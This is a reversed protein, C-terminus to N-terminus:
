PVLNNLETKSTVIFQYAFDKAIDSMFQTPVRDIANRFESDPVELIRRLTVQAYDPWQQFIYNAIDLPSPAKPDSIDAFVGGNGKRVYNLVGDSDLIRKRREDNMERGLSSAHDYSPAASYRNIGNQIESRLEWNEHHRDTNGILADLLAYSALSTLVDEQDDKGDVTEKVAKVINLVNHDRQRFRAEPRMDYEPIKSALIESGPIFISGEIDIEETQTSMVIDATLTYDDDVYDLEDPFYEYLEYWNDPDFSECVTVLEGDCNALEVRACDVGILGGVEAAVKEAWHEGTDKRPFKLLWLNREHPAIQEDPIFTWFKRRTGRSELGLQRLEFEISVSHVAYPSPSM